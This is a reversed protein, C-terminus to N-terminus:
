PCRCNNMYNDRFIKLGNDRMKDNHYENVKFNINDNVLKYSLLFKMNM